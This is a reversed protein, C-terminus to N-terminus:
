LHIGNDKVVKIIYYIIYMVDIGCGRTYNVNKHDSFLLFTSRLNICFSISALSAM